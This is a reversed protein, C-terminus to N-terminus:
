RTLHGTLRELAESWFEKLREAEDGRAIKRHGVSLTTRGEKPTLFLEAVSGDPWVLRVVKGPRASRVTLGDVGLWGAREAPDHCARFLREASVPLTRSRNVEWTGDRKQGPARLGRLREYGVTVTQAWWGDVGHVDQLHRAIEPHPLRAAGIADLIGVWGPWDRSTAKRLAENSAGALEAHDPPLDPTPAPSGAQPGSIPASAPDALPASIPSPAPDASIPAPLDAPPAAREMLQARATTYSEGTKAMRARVLRKFDSNDTM